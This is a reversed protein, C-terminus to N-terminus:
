VRSTSSLRQLVEFLWRGVYDKAAETESKRDAGINNPENIYNKISHKHQAEIWKSDPTNKFLDIPKDEENGGKSSINHKSIAIVGERDFPLGDNAFYIFKDKLLIHGRQKM